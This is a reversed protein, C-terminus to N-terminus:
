ETTGSMLKIMAAFDSESCDMCYGLPPMRNLGELTSQMMVSSGRAIRPTWAELDGTRPAGAEGVVHCLACSRQWKEQTDETFTARIWTDSDPEVPESCGAICLVVPLFFYRMRPDDYRLQEETVISGM